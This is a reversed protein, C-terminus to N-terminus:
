GAARVGRPLPAGRKTCRKVYAPRWHGYRGMVTQQAVVLAVFDARAGNKKLVKFMKKQTKTM